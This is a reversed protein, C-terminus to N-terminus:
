PVESSHSAVRARVDVDNTMRENMKVKAQSPTVAGLIDQHKIYAPSLHQATCPWQDGDEFDAISTQGSTGHDWRNLKAPWKSPNDDSWGNHTYCNGDLDYQSDHKSGSVSLMEQGDPAMRSGYKASSHAMFGAPFWTVGNAKRKNTSVLVGITALVLAIIIIGVIVGM